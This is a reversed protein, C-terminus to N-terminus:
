PLQEREVVFVVDGAATEPWIFPIGPFM